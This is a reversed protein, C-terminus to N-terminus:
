GGSKITAYGRIQAQVDLVTCVVILLSAGGLYFPVQAYVILLEPVLYVLALYAAGLLTVRSLVRDIHEATAEGPEVGAVVGGCTKLDEAAADPSFILATYIMACAVIFVAQCILYLPYGAAFWAAVMRWLASGEETVLTVVLTPVLLLWSAFIAAMIGASNLKLSLQSHGAITRAGIQRARFELPLRRRALEMVVILATLAVALIVLGLMANFSLLGQRGAELANAIAGPLEAIIGLALILAIGNGIGRLTMQGSLWMLFVVGGTMTLVTSLRFVAGPEIVVGGVGELAIAIGFAQVAALVIALIRTATELRSRGAEGKRKLAKLRPITITLLQVIIAASVYPLIGLAFIALRHIGGGALMNFTGLIGGAQTRFVQEWVVPDIGPVPIYTGLRFVLLAGLTFAVRRGLELTM